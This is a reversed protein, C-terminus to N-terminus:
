EKKSDQSTKTPKAQKRIRLHLRRIFKEKKVKELPTTEIKEKKKPLKPGRWAAWTRIPARVKKIRFVVYAVMVICIFNILFILASNGAYIYQGLLICIGINVIPPMLSAGIAIGILSSSIGATLSFGVAIGISIAIIINFIVGIVSFEGRIIIEKPLNGQNVFEPVFIAVSGGLIFGISIAIMFGILETKLSERILLRDKILWGYSTALIPGMLPAIVMSAVVIAANDSILGIGAIIASIIIFTFYNLSFTANKLIDNYIEEVAIRSELAEKEKDEIMDLPPVTAKLEIIDIIGFTVGVGIKNLEEVVYSEKIIRTRVLVLSDEEGTLIFIGKLGLGKLIEIVSDIKDNPITVQLQRM